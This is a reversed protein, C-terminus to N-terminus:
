PARWRVGWNAAWSICRICTVQTFDGRHTRAYEIAEDTSGMPPTPWNGAMGCVSTPDKPRSIHVLGDVGFVMPPMVSVAWDTDICCGDEGCGYWGYDCADDWAYDGYAVDSSAPAKADIVHLRRRSKWGVRRAIQTM